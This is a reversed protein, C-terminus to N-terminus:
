NKLIQQKVLFNCKPAIKRNEEASLDVPFKQSFEFLHELKRNKKREIPFKLQSADCPGM